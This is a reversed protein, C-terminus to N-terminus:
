YYWWAQLLPAAMGASNGGTDHDIVPINVLLCAVLEVDDLTFGEFVDHVMHFIDVSESWPSHTVVRQRYSRPPHSATAASSLSEAATVRPRRWAGGDLGVSHLTM